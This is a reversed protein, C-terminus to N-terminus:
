WIESMGRCLHCALNLVQTLVVDRVQFIQRDDKPLAIPIRSLEMVIVPESRQVYRLAASSRVANTLCPLRTPIADVPAPFANSASCALLASMFDQCCHPHSIIM